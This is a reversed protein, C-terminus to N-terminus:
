VADTERSDGNSAGVERAHARSPIAYVGDATSSGLSRADRGEIARSGTGDALGRFRRSSHLM